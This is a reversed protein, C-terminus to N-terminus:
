KFKVIYDVLQKLDTLYSVQPFEDLPNTSIHLLAQGGVIIPLKPYISNLDALMRKLNGFNFYVSLSIAIVHPKVEAVFKILESTPFGTGLYFSEWENLEFVDAVMKIGVQHEEKDVCALVVKKGNYKKPIIEPYLENLIGETIATAMHEAAVTIKNQEWLRGVEYLAVKLVKEYLENFSHKDALYEKVISSCERRNGELLYQLYSESPETKILTNM